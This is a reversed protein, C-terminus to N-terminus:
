EDSASARREMNLSAGALEAASYDAKGANAFADRQLSANMLVAAVYWVAFIALLVTTLPLLSKM